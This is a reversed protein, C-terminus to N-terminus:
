KLDAESIQPPLAMHKAVHNVFHAILRRDTKPYEKVYDKARDALIKVYQNSTM